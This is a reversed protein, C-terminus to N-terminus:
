WGQKRMRHVRDCEAEFGEKFRARWRVIRLNKKLQGRRIHFRQSRVDHRLKNRRCIGEMRQFARTVDTYGTVDVTKGLSTSLRIVPGQKGFAQDSRQMADRMYSTQSFRSSSATTPTTNSNSASPADGMINDLISLPKKGAPNGGFAKNLAAQVPAKRAAMAAEAARRAPPLPEKTGIGDIIADLEKGGFRVRLTSDVLAKLSKLLNGFSEANANPADIHAEARAMAHVLSEHQRPIMNAQDQLQYADMIMRVSSIYSQVQQKPTAAPPSSPFSPQDSIKMEPDTTTQM